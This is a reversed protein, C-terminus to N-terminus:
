LLSLNSFSIADWELIRARSIELVLSTQCAVTWPMAFLQSVVSSSLVFNSIDYYFSLHFLFLCDYIWLSVGHGLFVSCISETIFAM